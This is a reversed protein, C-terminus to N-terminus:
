YISYALNTGPCKCSPPDLSEVVKYEARICDSEIILRTGDFAVNTVDRIEMTYRDRPERVDVKFIIRFVPGDTTSQLTIVTGRQVAATEARGKAVSMSRFAGAILRANDVLIPLM